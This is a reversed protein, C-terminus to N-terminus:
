SIGSLFRRLFGNSIVRANFATKFYKLIVFFSIQKEVFLCFKGLFTKINILLSLAFADRCSIALM